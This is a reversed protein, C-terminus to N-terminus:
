SPTSWLLSPQPLRHLLAPLNPTSSPMSLLVCQCCLRLGNLRQSLIRLCHCAIYRTPRILYQCCVSLRHVRHGRIRRRHCAKCRNPRQLREFCLEFIHLRHGLIRIRHRATRRPLSLIRKCRYVSAIFAIRVFVFANALSGVTPRRLHRFCPCLHNIRHGRIRSPSFHCLRVSLSPTALLFQPSCIAVLLFATVPTELAQRSSRTLIYDPASPSTWLYYPLQLFHFPASSPLYYLTPPLGRLKYRIKM